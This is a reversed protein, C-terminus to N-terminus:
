QWKPESDGTLKKNNINDITTQLNSLSIDTEVLWGDSDFNNRADGNSYGSAGGGGGNNSAANGGIYGAAGGGRSGDGIGGNNRYGLGAKYGRNISGSGNIIDGNAATRATYTRMKLM